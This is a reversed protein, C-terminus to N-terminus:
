FILPVMILFILVLAFHCAFDLLSRVLLVGSCFSLCGLGNYYTPQVILVQNQGM